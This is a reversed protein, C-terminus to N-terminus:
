VLQFHGDDGYVVGNIVRKIYSSVIDDQFTSRDFDDADRLPNYYRLARRSEHKWPYQLQIVANRGVGSHKRFMDILHYPWIKVEPEQKSSDRCEVFAYTSQTGGLVALTVYNNLPAQTLSELFLGKKHFSRLGRIVFLNCRDLSLVRTFQLWAEGQSHSIAKKNGRLWLKQVTIGNMCNLTGTRAIEEAEEYVKSMIPLEVSIRGDQSM